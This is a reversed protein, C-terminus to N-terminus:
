HKENLKESELQALDRCLSGGLVIYQEAATLQMLACLDRLLLGVSERTDILSEFPDRRTAEKQMEKRYEQLASIVRERPIAPRVLIRYTVTKPLM